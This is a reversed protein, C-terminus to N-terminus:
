KKLAEFASWTLTTSGSPVPAIISPMVLRGFRSVLKCYYYVAGVGQSARDTPWLAVSFTGDSAVAARIPRPMIIEGTIRDVCVVPQGFRNVLQFVAYAANSVTNGAPDTIPQTNSLTRTVLIGPTAPQQSETAPWFGDLLLSAISGGVGMGGSIIMLAGTPLTGTEEEQGGSVAPWFGDLIFSSVSGGYGIGGSIILM